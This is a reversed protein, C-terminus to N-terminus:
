FIDGYIDNFKVKHRALITNPPVRDSIKTCLLVHEQTDCIPENGDAWCKLPCNLDIKYLNKFNSCM